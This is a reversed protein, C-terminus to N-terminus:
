ANAKVSHPLRNSETFDVVYLMTTLLLCYVYPIRMWRMQLMQISYIFKWQSIKRVFTM